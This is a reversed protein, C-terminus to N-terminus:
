PPKFPVRAMSNSVCRSTSSRSGFPFWMETCEDKRLRASCSFGRAVGTLAYSSLSVMTAASGLEFFM